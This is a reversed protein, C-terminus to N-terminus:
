ELHKLWVKTIDDCNYKLFVDVSVAAATFVPLTSTRTIIVSLSVAQQKHSHDDFVVQQCDCM